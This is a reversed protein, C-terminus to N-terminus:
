SLRNGITWPSLSMLVDGDRLDVLVRDQVFRSRNLLSLTTLLDADSRCIARIPPINAMFGYYGGAYAWLEEAGSRHLVVLLSGGYMAIQHAGGGQSSVFRYCRSYIVNKFTNVDQSGGQSLHQRYLEDFAFVQPYRQLLPTEDFPQPTNHDDSFGHSPPSVGHRIYVVTNHESLSHFLRALTTLPIHNVPGRHWEDNHKNHIV